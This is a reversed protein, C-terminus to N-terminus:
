SGLWCGRRLRQAGIIDAGAAVVASGAALGGTFLYAAIKWEWVPAKIVPRGYYSTAEAPPVVTEEGSGRRPGGRRPGGRRPDLDTSVSPRRDRLLRVRRDRGPRVVRGGRGGAALDPARLPHAGGAGPAAGLGGAQGPAPVALRPRGRRRGPRPRLARGRRGRARPTRGAPPRRTGPARRSSRVPDVRDPLGERLGPHPRRAAPRLVAHVQAGPRGAPEPRDGRVPM